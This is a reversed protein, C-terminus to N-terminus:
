RSWTDQFAFIVNCAKPAGPTGCAELVSRMNFTLWM